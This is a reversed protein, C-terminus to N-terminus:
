LCHLLRSEAHHAHHPQMRWVFHLFLYQKAVLPSYQWNVLELLPPVTDHDVATRGVILLWHTYYQLSELALCLNSLEGQMEQSNLMEGGGKMRIDNIKHYNVEQGGSKDTDEFQAAKVGLTVTM